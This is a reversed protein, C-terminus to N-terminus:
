FGKFLDKVYDKVAKLLTHKEPDNKNQEYLNAWENCFHDLNYLPNTTMRSQREAEWKQQEETTLTEAFNRARYRWLLEPLRADTFNFTKHALVDVPTQHVQGLTHKDQDSLFAGSYLQQEVDINQTDDETLTFIQEIKDALANKEKTSLQVLKNLNAQCCAININLQESRLQDLWSAPALIPSRNLYVGKLRIRREQQELELAETKTFLHAKLEAIKAELLFDIDSHLGLVYIKNPNQKDQALPYVLDAHGQYAPIRGSIHLLAQNQHKAVCRRVCAKKRLQFAYDFLKPQKSKLIKALAITAEVDSLADHAKNHMLGNAESLHELKFSVNGERNKPWNLTQPALAHIFRVTDLLDWRSNYNRYEHSYSDYLNRYFMFRTLEDDFRINNYGVICSGPQNFLHYIRESLAAETLGKENAEQPTIGTILTAEPQPILDDPLKGYLVVSKDCSENQTQNVSASQMAPVPIPNFAEDTVIAAFQAVRTHRLNLGFTEYDYWIFQM